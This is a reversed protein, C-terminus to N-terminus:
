RTCRRRFVIALALFDTRDATQGYAARQVSLVEFHREAATAISALTLRPWGCRAREYPDEPTDARRTPLRTCFAVISCWTLVPCGVELVSAGLPVHEGILREVVPSVCDDEWPTDGRRFREDWDATHQM